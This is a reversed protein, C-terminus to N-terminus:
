TNLKRLTRKLCQWIMHPIRVWFYLNSYIWLSEGRDRITIIKKYKKLLRRLQDKLRKILIKQESSSLGYNRIADQQHRNQWILDSIRRKAIHQFGHDYFYDVQEEMADLVAIRALSWKSRSIGSPNVRHAYLPEQIVPISKYQFLIKYIIFEDEHIKGVPFRLTSFLNKKYLKGWATIATSMNRLYFADTKENKITYETTKPLAEGHTYRRSSISIDFGHAAYLLAELYLPHVWDDSDIFTLWQSESNSLAWEIGSNRASSLGQNPKHIVHIRDDRKAYDDCIQGCCDPSGDDILILEFDSFTQSLISNICCSLYVEVKYIPVIISILPM